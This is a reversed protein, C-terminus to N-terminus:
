GSGFNVTLRDCFPLAEQTLSITRGFLLSNKEFLIGNQDVWERNKGFMEGNHMLSMNWLLDFWARVIKEQVPGNNLFDQKSNIGDKGTWQGKWDNRGTNDGLYYGLDTLADEGFQYKGLFGISNVKTYDGSSEKFGLDELFEEYTGTM